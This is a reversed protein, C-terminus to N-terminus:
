TSAYECIDKFDCHRCNFESAKPPFNSKKISEINKVIKDKVKQLETPTGIFSIKKNNDLYYFSLLTPTEHLSEVAALQYILLQEKDELDLDEEAKPKGTKYDILEVTGNIQPDVRDIQGRLTYDGIKLHFGVELYKPIVNQSTSYFQTLMKKGKEYYEEKQKKNEYWENIWSSDYIAFLESLSPVLHEKSKEAKNEDFLMGQSVSNLKIVEEYFKQLTLHMTKGFSFTANGKTPIQLIHAFRYQYPCTEFTKLQTFSFQKPLSLETQSTKTEANSKYFEVAESKTTEIIKGLGLENLFRSPKRKRVGTGYFDAYSLYLGEKARTMAVYFLRREEQLHINGESLIEKILAKPLEISEGRKQSPFKQEVMNVVFVYRFELGKSAHVTMIKVAETSEDAFQKLNGEEGSELIYNLYDLYHKVMKEDHTQEFKTITNFFEKLHAIQRITEADGESNQSTLKKLYGSDELFSFIIKGVTESSALKSHREIFELIKNIIAYENEDIGLTSATKLIEFISLSKKKAEHTINIVTNTDLGWLPMNLVRFVANNEHYNDLLKLYALIDLVITQRYLGTSAMFQYPIGEHDLAGIFDEAENHSRILIAFDNWSGNGNAQNIENLEIIKKIVKRAEEEGSLAHIEEVIGGNKLAKLKKDINLKAELRDPNNNTISTYSKDLIEQFSRYNETLAVLGAEPYDTKFHLINSISAGRFKYISQDDDGVVTLNNEPTGLLRILEYQALNTDQFEDVLIYKFQKRYLDLIKPRTKFLQLTYNILDGFDLANNDLLIQNYTQYASAIEKLRKTEEDFIEQNQDPSLDKNLLQSESYELYDKSSVLEDKARSFHNILAHIFKTPNGLPRYYDLDFKDLNERILLWADTQTLLKFEGPLGIDLCHQKLIKEGFAHFTNIWLDVFGYPLLQDIREELEGSAKDTFTLILIEDPKALGQEILWAARRTIVTTKGTGAGAVILLPGNGYTVAQKQSNNLDEVLSIQTM